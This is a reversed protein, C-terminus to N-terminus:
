NCIQSVNFDPDEYDLEEGNEDYYEEDGYDEGKWNDWNEVILFSSFCNEHKVNIFCVNSLRLTLTYYAKCASESCCPKYTPCLANFVQFPCIQGVRFIM